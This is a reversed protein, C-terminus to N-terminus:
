KECCFLFGFRLEGGVMTKHPFCTISSFGTGFLYTSIENQIAQDNNVENAIKQATAIDLKYNRTKDFAIFMCNEGNITKISSTDWIIPYATKILFTLRNAIFVFPNKQVPPNDDEEDDEVEDDEPLPIPDGNEDLGFAQRYIESHKPQPAVIDKFEKGSALIDFISPPADEEEGDEDGVDEDVIEQINRPRESKGPFTEVRVKGGFLKEFLDKFNESCTISDIVVKPERKKPVEVKSVSTEWMPQATDPRLPVDKVFRRARPLGFFDRFFDEGFVEDVRGSYTKFM